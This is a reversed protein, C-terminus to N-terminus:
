GRSRVRQPQQAALERLLVLAIATPDRLQDRTRVVSTRSPRSRHRRALRRAAPRSGAGPGRTPRPPPAASGPGASARAPARAAPAPRRSAPCPTRPQRERPQAPPHAERVAGHRITVRSSRRPSSPRLARGSSRRNTRMSSASGTLRPDLAVQGRRAESWEGGRERLGRFLLSGRDDVAHGGEVPQELAPSPLM